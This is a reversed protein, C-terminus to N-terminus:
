QRSKELRQLGDTSSMAICRIIDDGIHQAAEVVMKQGNNNIEIANQIAPLNEPAFRIDVVPGIVQVIKGTENM